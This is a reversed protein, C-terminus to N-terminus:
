IEEFSLNFDIRNAVENPITGIRTTPNGITTQRLFADDFKKRANKATLNPYFSKAIELVSKDPNDNLIKFLKEDNIRTEPKTNKYPDAKSVKRGTSPLTIMEDPTTKSGLDELVTGEIKKQVSAPLEDFKSGTKVAANFGKILSKAEADTSAATLGLLGSGQM